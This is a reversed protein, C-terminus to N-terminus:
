RSIEKIIENTDVAPKSKLKGTLYPEIREKASDMSYFGEVVRKFPHLVLWIAGNTDENGQEKKSFGKKASFSDDLKYPGGAVYTQMKSGKGAINVTQQSFAKKHTHFGIYVDASQKGFKSERNAPHTDNYISHGPLQHSCVLIYEIDGVKLIITSSGRLLPTKYREKFTQYITPGGQESWMCHDGQLAALISKGGLMDFMKIAMSTEETFSAIKDDQAPNFAAGDVVDGGLITYCKPNESIFHTDRRLMEYDVEKGSLHQDGFIGLIIPTTTPIEIEIEDPIEEIERRADRRRIMEEIMDDFSVEQFPNEKYTPPIKEVNDYIIQEKSKFDGKSNIVLGEKQSPM